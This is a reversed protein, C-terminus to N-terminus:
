FEASNSMIQQLLCNSRILSDSTASRSVDAWTEAKEIQHRSYDLAATAAYVGLLLHSPLNPHKVVRVLIEAARVPDGPLSSINGTPL